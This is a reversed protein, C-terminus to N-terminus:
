GIFPLPPRNGGISPPSFFASRFFSSVDRARSARAPHIAPYARAFFHACLRPPASFACRRSLPLVVKSAPALRRREPTSVDVLSESRKRADARVNESRCHKMHPM